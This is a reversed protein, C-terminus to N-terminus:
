RVLIKTTSIKGNTNISVIYVGTNGNLDIRTTAGPEVRGTAIARGLMDSVTIKGAEQQLSAIRIVGDTAYINFQKEAKTDAVSTVDLFHLFFRDSITSSTSVHFTYEPVFALNTFTGAVRDELTIVSNEGFSETQSAAITYNGAVGAKVCLPISGNSDSDGIFNISYNQSNKVSWLEPANIYMSRFKETGDSDDSSNLDIITEDSYSNADCSLSLRLEEDITEGGKLYAQASHVKVSNNMTLNGVTAALVMFGQGASIYRTAGNIGSGGTIYAGYNGRADNWVWYSKQTGSLNSRGWGSAAEWDISCPYPNGALNYYQYTSTGGRTLPYSVTGTNLTGSFSKTTNTAEYAVLYGRGPSFNTNGNAINWTPSSAANKINVWLLQPEYWTYFDYGSATPAFGGSIAQSSVPSSLFHWSWSIGNIFREVRAKSGTVSGNTILSATGASTSKLVISDNLTLAGNM